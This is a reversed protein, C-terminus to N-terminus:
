PATLTGLNSCAGAGESSPTARIQGSPAEFSAPEAPTATAPPADLTPPEAMGADPELDVPYAGRAEQALGEALLPQLAAAIKARLDHKFRRLALRVGHEGDKIAAATVDGALSDVHDIARVIAAGVRRIAADVGHEGEIPMVLGRQRALEITKIATETTIKALQANTLTPDTAARPAAPEPPAFPEATDGAVGASPEAGRRGANEERRVRMTLAAQKQAAHLTSAIARDYEAVNVLKPLGPGRSRTTVMGDREFIGVKRSVVQKSIGDRRALDTVSFWAPAAGDAATDATSVTLPTPNDALTV